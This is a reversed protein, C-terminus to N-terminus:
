KCLVCYAYVMRIYYVNYMCLIYMIYIIYLYSIFKTIVSHVYTIMYNYQNKAMSYNTHM